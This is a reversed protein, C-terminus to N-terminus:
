CQSLMGFPYKLGLDAGQLRAFGIKYKGVLDLLNNIGCQTLQGLFRSLYKLHATDFPKGVVHNAYFHIETLFGDFVM